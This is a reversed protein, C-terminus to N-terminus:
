PCRRAQAPSWLGGHLFMSTVLTLAVPLGDYPFPDTFHTIAVPIVGFRHVFLWAAQPPLVAEYLFVVVNVAILFVTVLPYTLTPNEDRIPIMDRTYGLRRPRDVSHLAHHSQPVGKQGFPEGL